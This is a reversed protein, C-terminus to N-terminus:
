HVLLKTTASTTANQPAGYPRLHTPNRNNSPPWGAREVGSRPDPMTEVPQDKALQKSTRKQTVCARKGTSPRYERRYIRNQTGEDPEPENKRTKRKNSTKKKQRGQQKKLKNHQATMKRELKVRADQVQLLRTKTKRWDTWIKFTLQICQNRINEVQSSIAKRLNKIEADSLTTTSAASHYRFLVESVGPPLIGLMGALRDHNEIKTLMKKTEEQSANENKFTQM